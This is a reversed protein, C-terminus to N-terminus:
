TPTKGRPPEALRSLERQLSAPTGRSWVTRGEGFYYDSLEPHNREIDLLFRQRELEIRRQDDHLAKSAVELDKFFRQLFREAQQRAKKWLEKAKEENGPTMSPDFKALGVAFGLCMLRFVSATGLANEQVAPLGEGGNSYTTASELLAVIFQVRFHFRALAADHKLVVHQLRRSLNRGFIPPRHGRAWARGNNVAVMLTELAQREFPDGLLASPLRKFQAAARDLTSGLRQLRTGGRHRHFRAAVDIRSVAAAAWNLVSTLDLASSSAELYALANSKGQPGVDFPDPRKRSLTGADPTRPARPM